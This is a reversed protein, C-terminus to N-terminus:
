SEKLLETRLKQAMDQAVSGDIDLSSHIQLCLGMKGSFTVCGLAVPHARTVPPCFFWGGHSPTNNKGWIGLNSVTGTWSHKKAYYKAMIKQMGQIGIKQGLVIGWWAAWHYRREIAMKIKLSIHTAAEHELTKISIYSAHNTKSDVREVQGRMNIPLLWINKQKSNQLTDRVVKDLTGLLLGTVSSHGQKAVECLKTTEQQGLVLPIPHNRKFSGETQRKNWSIHRVRSDLLYLIFGLIRKLFNSKLEKLQPAPLNIGEKEALLQQFGGIGDYHGHDLYFFEPAEQKSVRGFVIDTFEGHLRLIPFWEAVWDKSWTKDSKLIM